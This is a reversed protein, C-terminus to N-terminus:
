ARAFFIKKIVLAALFLAIMVLPFAVCLAIVGVAAALLLGYILYQM